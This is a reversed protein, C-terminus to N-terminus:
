TLLKQLWQKMGLFSRQKYIYLDHMVKIIYKSVILQPARQFLVYKTSTVVKKLM